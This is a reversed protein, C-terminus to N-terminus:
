GFLKLADEIGLNESAAALRQVTLRQIEVGLEAIKTTNTAHTKEAKDLLGQGGIAQLATRARGNAADVASKVATKPIFGIKAMLRLFLKNINM